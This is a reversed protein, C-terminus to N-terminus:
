FQITLKGFEDASFQRKFVDNGNTFEINYDINIGKIKTYCILTVLEM